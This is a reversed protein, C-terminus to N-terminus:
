IACSPGNKSACLLRRDADHRLRADKRCVQLIQPSGKLDILDSVLTAMWARCPPNDPAPIPTARIPMSNM